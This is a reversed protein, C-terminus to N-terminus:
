VRFSQYECQALPSASAPVIDLSRPDEIYLLHALREHVAGRPQLVGVIGQLSTNEFDGERVQLVVLFVGEALDLETDVFDLSLVTECVKGAHGEGAVLELRKYTFPLSQNLCVGVDLGRVAIEQSDEDDREGFTTLILHLLSRVRLRRLYPLDALSHGIDHGLLGRAPGELLKHLLQDRLDNSPFDLFTTMRNIWQLIHINPLDLDELRGLQIQLLQQLQM